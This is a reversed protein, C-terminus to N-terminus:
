EVVDTYGLIEQLYKKHAVLNLEIVNGVGEVEKGTYSWEGNLQEKELPIRQSVVKLDVLMPIFEWIYNTIEEDTMDTTVLPLIETAMKHLDWLGMTKCKKILSDMVARQRGTREFDSDIKRIRSYALADMGNLTQPGAVFEHDPYYSWEKHTEEKNLYDAEAQTLTVDVGGMLDIIKEFAVFDVEVTHDIHIGFNQEVCLALMEMGGKVSGSWVTGLNYCVNIRNRGPGHNQYDPLPVYIDRMISTMTLTNTDRNITCMIMTDSLYHEQGERYDQGVLMITTVNQTAVVEPWAITEENPDQPDVVQDQKQDVNSVTGSPMSPVTAEDAKTTMGAYMMTIHKAAIFGAIGLVVIVALVILFVKWGKGSRKAGAKRSTGTKKYVVKPDDTKKLYKGSM